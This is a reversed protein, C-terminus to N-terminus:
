TWAALVLRPADRFFRESQFVLPMINGKMGVSTVPANPQM